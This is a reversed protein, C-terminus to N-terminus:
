FQNQKTRGVVVLEVVFAQQGEGSLLLQGEQSMVFPQNDASPVTELFCCITKENRMNGNSFFCKRWGFRPVELINIVDQGSHCWAEPSFM